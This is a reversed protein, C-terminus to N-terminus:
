APRGAHRVLQALGYLALGVVALVVAGLAVGLAPWTTPGPDGYPARSLVGFPHRLRVLPRFFRGLVRVIWPTDATSPALLEASDLRLTPLHRTTLELSFEGAV